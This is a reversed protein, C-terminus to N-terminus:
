VHFRGKWHELNRVRQKLDCIKDSQRMLAFSQVLNTVVIITLTVYDITTM